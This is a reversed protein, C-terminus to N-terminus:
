KRGGSTLKDAWSRYRGLHWEVESVSHAVFCYAKNDRLKAMFEAQKDTLDKRPQKVEIGLFRGDPMVGIIDPSGAPSMHIVRGKIVLGANNRWCYINRLKLYQLIEKQIETEPNSLKAGTDTV